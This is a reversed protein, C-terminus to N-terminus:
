GYTLSAIIMYAMFILTLAVVIVMVLAGIRDLWKYGTWCTDFVHVPNQRTGKIDRNNV